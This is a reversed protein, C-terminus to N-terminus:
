GTMPEFFIGTAGGGTELVHYRVWQIQLQALHRAVGTVLSSFRPALLFLRPHAALNMTQGPHMRRVNALNHALWDSHAIGRLVLTDNADTEFDIITLQSSRDVALLDIEGYPHCPVSADIVRLGEELANQSERLMAALRAKTISTTAQLCVTRGNNRSRTQPIMSEQPRGPPQDGARLDNARQSLFLHSIQGLGRGLSQDPHEANQLTTSDEAKQDEMM